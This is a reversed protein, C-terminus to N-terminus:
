AVPVTPRIRRDLLGRVKRMLEDATFPKRIIEADASRVGRRVVEDDTYGSMYLVKLQPRRQSLREVLEGGGMEPMVVDTVLLHIPREHRDAMMLADRGHRADLVTHGHDSLVKRVLARVGEEDEAVLVTESGRLSGAVEFEPAEEAEAEPLYVKVTTGTGPESTIRLAGGNQRIIGHALTLGLGNQQAAPSDTDMGSSTDSIALVTYRGPRVHGGPAAGSVQRSSTELILTGGSGAMTDRASLVLNVLVQELQGPDMRVPGLGSGLRLELVVDAGVLQQIMAQMASIMENLKLGGSQPTQTRGFALLQRTLVAGRGAAKVIQELDKRHRDDEPLEHLVVESFGRITTLINNFDHAVGGAMRGMVDMWQVQRLQEESRHLAARTRTKESIDTALVLRARRGDLEMEHSVIEMDVVTGDKRQHQSLAVEERQSGRGLGPPYALVDEPPRIDMITMALFEDRSYGYHRMAAENVAVFALTDVDFIWMPHPNAEFLLRYRSDAEEAERHLRGADVALAARGALETAFELDAAGLRRGYELSTALTLVGAPRGRALLPVRVFTTPALARLLKLHEADEARERLLDDTVETLEADLGRGGFPLPRSGYECLARVLLDRAPDRHSGAVFRLAGRESAVHIACWDAMTPVILRALDRLTVNYDLSSALTASARSFLSMRRDLAEVEESSMELERSREVASHLRAVIIAIAPSVLGLLLLSYGSAPTFHLPERPVSLFHAAYVVTILASILGPRVGGTRASYVVMLLLIPFPHPLPFGHRILVDLLIATALSALPGRVSCGIRMWDPVAARSRLRRRVVDSARVMPFAGSHTM